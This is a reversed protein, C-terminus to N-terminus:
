RADGGGWGVRQWGRQVHHCRPMRAVGAEGDKM